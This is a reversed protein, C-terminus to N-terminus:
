ASFSLENIILLIPNILLLKSPDTTTHSWYKDILREKKALKQSSGLSSKRLNYKSSNQILISLINKIKNKSTPLKGFYIM